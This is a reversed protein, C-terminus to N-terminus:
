DRFPDWDPDDDDDDYRPKKSEPQGGGDDNNEDQQTIYVEIQIDQVNNNDNGRGGEGGSVESAAPNSCQQLFKHQQLFFKEAFERNCTTCTFSQQPKSPPSSSPDDDSDDYSDVRELKRKAGGGAPTIQGKM